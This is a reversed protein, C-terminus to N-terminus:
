RIPHLGYRHKVGDAVSDIGGSREHYRPKIPAGNKGCPAYNRKNCKYCHTSSEVLEASDDALGLKVRYIHSRM